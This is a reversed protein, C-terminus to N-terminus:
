PQHQHNISISISPWDHNMSPQKIHSRNISLQYPNFIAFSAQDHYFDHLVTQCSPINIMAVKNAKNPEYIILFLRNVLQDPLYRLPSFCLPHCFCGSGSEKSSLVEKAPYDLPPTGCCVWTLWALLVTVSWISTGHHRYTEHQEPYPMPQKMSLKAAPSDVSPLRPYPARRLFPPNNFFGLCEPHRSPWPTWSTYGVYRHTFTVLWFSEFAKWM